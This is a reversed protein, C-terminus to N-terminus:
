KLLIMSETLIENGANIQYFYMGSPVNNGYENSGDWNVSYDGASKYGSSLSKVMRGSLDYIAVTVASGSDLSYSITTEPNFPNPYNKAQLGRTQEDEASEKLDESQEIGWAELLEMVAAHIEERSAGEERMSKRLDHVQAKQDETLNEMFPPQGKHGRQGIGHGHEPIEIGWSELLENVASRIERRNAGASDMSARLEHLQERQGDTLEELFHLPGFGGHRGQGEGREPIDIGWNDLMEQVAGRIEERSADEGRMSKRLQHLQDQQDESLQDMFPPNGFHGQGNGGEGREPVDVGWSVLLERVALHIEQRGADSERMESVMEHLQDKQEPTLQDEFPMRKGHQGAM